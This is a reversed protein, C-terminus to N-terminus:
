IKSASNIELAVTAINKAYGGGEGTYKMIRLSTNLVLLWETVKWSSLQFYM